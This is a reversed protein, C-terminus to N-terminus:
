CSMRHTYLNFLKELRSSALDHATLPYTQDIATDGASKSIIKRVLPMRLRMKAPTVVSTQTLVVIRSAFSLPYYEGYVDSTGECIEFMYEKERAEAGNNRSLRSIMLQHNMECLYSHKSNVSQVAAMWSSFWVAVILM